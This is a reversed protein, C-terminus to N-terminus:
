TGRYGLDSLNSPPIVMKLVENQIWKEIKKKPEEKEEPEEKTDSGEEDDFINKM